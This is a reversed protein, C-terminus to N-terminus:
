GGLLDTIISTFDLGTTLSELSGSLLGTVGFIADLIAAILQSLFSVIFGDISM